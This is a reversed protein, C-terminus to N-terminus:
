VYKYKKTHTYQQSITHAQIKNPVNQKSIRWHLESIFISLFHLHEKLVSAKQWISTRLLNWVKKKINRLM